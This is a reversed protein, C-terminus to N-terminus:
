AENAEDEGNSNDLGNSYYKSKVYKKGFGYTLLLGLLSVISTSVNETLYLIRMAFCFAIWFSVRGLSLKGKEEEILPRFYNTIKKMNIRKKKNGLSQPNIMMVLMINEKLNM